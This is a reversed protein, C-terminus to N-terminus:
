KFKCNDFHWRMMAVSKGSKNCHPCTYIACTKGKRTLSMKQRTDNSLTKGTNVLSLKKKHSESKPKGTMSVSIKQKTETSRSKGKLANSIKQKTKSSLPSCSKGKNHPTKGFMPNKSGQKALSFKLKQDASFLKKGFNPNNVGSCNLSMQQKCYHYQKATVTRTHNSNKACMKFLAYAMKAKNKGTHMKFLLHHAVYHEKPTLLVLNENTNNGGLSKPVIHHLEYTGSTKTRDLQKKSQILNNYLLHYNM